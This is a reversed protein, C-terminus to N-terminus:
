FWLSLTQHLIPTGARTLSWLTHVLNLLEVFKSAYLDNLQTLSPGSPATAALGKARRRQARTYEYQAVAVMILHGRLDELTEWSDGLDAPPQPFYGNRIADFTAKRHDKCMLFSM